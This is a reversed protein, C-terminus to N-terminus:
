ERRLFDAAGMLGPHVRFGSRRTAGLNVTLRRGAGPDPLEVMGGMRAFGPMAGMTLVPEGALSRLLGGARPGAQPAFLLVDCEKMREVSSVVRVSLGHEEMPRVAAFKGGFGVLGVTM